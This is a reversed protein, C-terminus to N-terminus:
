CCEWIFLCFFFLFNLVYGWRPDLVPNQEWCCSTLAATLVKGFSVMNCLDATAKGRSIDSAPGDVSSFIFLLQTCIIDNSGRHRLRLTQLLCILSFDTHLAGDAKIDLSDVAMAGSGAYLHDVRYFFPRFLSYFESFAVVSTANLMLVAVTTHHWWWM